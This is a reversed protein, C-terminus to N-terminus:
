THICFQLIDLTRLIKAGFRTTVLIFIYLKIFSQFFGKETELSGSVLNEVESNKEHILEWPGRLIGNPGSLIQM